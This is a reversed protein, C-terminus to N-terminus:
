SQYVEGFKLGIYRVINRCRCVGSVRSPPQRVPPIRIEREITSVFSVQFAIEINEIDALGIFELEIDASM